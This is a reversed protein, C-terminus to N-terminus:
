PSYFSAQGTATVVALQAGLLVPALFDSTGTVKFGRPGVVAVTTGLPVVALDNWRRPQASLRGEVRGLEQWDAEPKARLWVRNDSTLFVDEGGAVATQPLKSLRPEQGDCAWATTATLGALGGDTPWMAVVAAGLDRRAILRGDDAQYVEITGDRRVALVRDGILSPPGAFPEGSAGNWFATPNHEDSAHLVGDLGAAILFRRSVIVQSTYVALAFDTRGGLVLRENGRPTARIALGERTAFYVADAAAV